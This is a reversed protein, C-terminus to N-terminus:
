VVISNLFNILVKNFLQSNSLHCLHKGGPVVFERVNEFRKLTVSANVGLSTDLEGRILLTKPLSTSADLDQTDSLGVGVVGLIKHENPSNLLPILYQGAM